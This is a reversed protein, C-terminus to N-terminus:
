GGHHVERRSVALVKSQVIDPWSWENVLDGFRTLYSFDASIIWFDPVDVIPSKDM